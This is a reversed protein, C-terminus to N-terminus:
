VQAQGGEEVNEQSVPQKHNPGNCRLNRVHQDMVHM